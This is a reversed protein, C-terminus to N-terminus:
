TWFSTAVSLRIIKLAGVYAALASDADATLNKFTHKADDSLNADKTEFHQAYEAQMKAQVEAIAQKHKM